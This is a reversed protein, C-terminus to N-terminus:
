FHAVQEQRAQLKIREYLVKSAEARNIRDDPRFTGKEAGNEDTDGSVVGFLAAYAVDAEYPHGSTDRFTTFLPLVEDGFVDHIIVLVEARSVPQDLNSVGADRVIRVGRKRACQVYDNAWHNIPTGDSCTEKQVQAAESAMKLIEAMTVSNGPKFEGTTKGQADKYGSVIGWESLSAVYPNFWDSESVDRFVTGTMDDLQALIESFDAAHTTEWLLLEQKLQVVEDLFASAVGATLFFAFFAIPLLRKLM